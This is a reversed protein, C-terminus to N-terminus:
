LAKVKPEELKMDTESFLQRSSSFVLNILASNTPQFVLVILWILNFLEMLSLLVAFTILTKSKMVNLSVKLM